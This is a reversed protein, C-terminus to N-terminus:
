HGENFKQLEHDPPVEIPNNSCFAGLSAHWDRATKAEDETEFLVEQGEVNKGMDIEVMDGRIYRYIWPM